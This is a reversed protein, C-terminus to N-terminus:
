VQQNVDLLDSDTSVLGTAFQAFHVFSLSRKLDSGTSLRSVLSRHTHRRSGPFLCQVLVKHSSANDRSDGYGVVLLWNRPVARLLDLVIIFIVVILRSAVLVNVLGSGSDKLLESFELTEYQLQLVDDLEFIVLCGIHGSQHGHDLLTEPPLQVQVGAVDGKALHLLTEGLDPLHEGM